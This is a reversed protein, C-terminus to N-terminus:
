GTSVPVWAGKPSILTAFLPGQLPQPLTHHLSAATMHGSVCSGDFGRTPDGGLGVLTMQLWM